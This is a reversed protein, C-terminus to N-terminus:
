GSSSSIACSGAARRCALALRTASKADRILPNASGGRHRLFSVLDRVSAYGIGLVKSGTAEYWLEYIKIPAFNRGVPLMRISANTSSNGSTAPSKPAATVRATACPSGRPPSTSRPPPIPSAASAATARARTGFHFEDRIRRVIPKGNELAPPFDAGLVVM